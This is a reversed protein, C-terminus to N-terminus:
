REHEMREQMRIGVGISRVLSRDERDIHATVWDVLFQRVLPDMARNDCRYSAIRDLLDRHALVHDDDLVNHSEAIREEATFHEAAYALLDRLIDAAPRGEDALAVIEFLRRHQADIEPHGLRYRQCLAAVLEAGSRRPKDPM